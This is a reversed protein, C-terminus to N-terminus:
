GCTSARRSRRRSGNCVATGLTRHPRHAIDFPSAVDISPVTPKKPPGHRDLLEAVAVVDFFSTELDFAVEQRLGTELRHQDLGTRRQPGM